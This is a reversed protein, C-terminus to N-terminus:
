KFFLEFLKKKEEFEHKLYENGFLYFKETYDVENNNLPMIRSVYFNSYKFFFEKSFFLFVEQKPYIEEIEKYRDFYYRVEAPGNIRHKLGNLYWNFSIYQKGYQGFPIEHTVQAAGYSNHRIGNIHFEIDIGEPNITSPGNNNHLLGNSFWYLRREGYKCDVAPFKTRHKIGNVFWEKKIGISKKQTKPSEFYINRKIEYEEYLIEIRAPKDNQRHLEGNKFWEIVNRYLNGWVIFNLNSSDYDENLVVRAPKDNDRHLVGEIFWEKKNKGDIAPGNTRHLQGHKFYFSGIPNIIAPGKNRHRKGFFWWESSNPTIRAPKDNKRHLKGKFYWEKKDRDILAPQDFNRHLKGDIYWMQIDKDIVAPLDNNRHLKNKNYWEQRSGNIIAPHDNISHLQGDKFWMKKNFECVAPLNNVRDHIGNLFWEKKNGKVIAPEDNDRHLLGNKYWKRHYRTEDKFIKTINIIKDYKPKLDKPSLKKNPSYYEHPFPSDGQLYELVYDIRRNEDDLLELEEYDLEVMAPLNNFSHVKGNLESILFSNEVSITKTNKGIKTVNLIGCFNSVPEDSYMYERNSDYARDMLENLYDQPNSYGEDYMNDEFGM